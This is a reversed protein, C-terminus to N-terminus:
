FEPSIQLCKNVVSSDWGGIINMCLKLLKTIKRLPCTIILFKKKQLKKKKKKKEFYVYM